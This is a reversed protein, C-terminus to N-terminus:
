DALPGGGEVLDAYLGVRQLAAAYADDDLTVFSAFPTVASEDPMPPFIVKRPIQMVLFLTFLTVAAVPWWEHIFDRM